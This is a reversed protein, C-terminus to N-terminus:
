GFRFTFNFIVKNTIDFLQSNSFLIQFLIRVDSAPTDTNNFEFKQSIRSDGGLDGM